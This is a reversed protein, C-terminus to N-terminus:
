SSPVPHQEMEITSWPDDFRDRRKYLENSLLRSIEIRKEKLQAQIRPTERNKERALDMAQDIYKIEKLKSLVTGVGLLDVKEVAQILEKGLQKQSALNARDVPLDSFDFSFSSM